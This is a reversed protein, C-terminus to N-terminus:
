CFKQMLKNLREIFLTKSFHRDYYNRASRGFQEHREKEAAFKRILSALGKYDEAASCYGCGSEEIIRRAEGNIAGIIPKGAAMYSQVKNPLTYSLTKNAKLTVIMADAMKYYFPLESLSLHGYFAVNNVGLDEALQECKKRSTGSGVIHIRIRDEDILEKAAYLITEVSQMEGINGAFVFHTEASEATDMKMEEFVSEAFVPLYALQREIGLVNRFYDAFPKSSIIVEDSNRYLWKSMALLFRYLFGGEKIGGASVSAPWLDHCYLILPKSTLRKLIIGPLAMTVPSLQYVM